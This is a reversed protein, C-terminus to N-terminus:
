VPAPVQRIKRAQKQRYMASDSANLLMGLTASGDYRVLGFSIGIPIRSAGWLLPAREINLCLENLRREAQGATIGPLALAFEDGHLRAVLDTSRATQFLHQAVHVLSADGAAHGFRDNIQKFGDLDLFALMGATKQRRACALERQMGAEFARRNPLGTLEDTGAQAELEEVRQTLEALRQESEAAVDLIQDLLTLRQPDADRRLALRLRLVLSAFGPRANAPPPAGYAPVKDTPWSALTHGTDNAALTQSSLAVTM